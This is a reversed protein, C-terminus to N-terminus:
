KLIKFVVKRLSKPNNIQVMTQHIDDPFFIAFHATKLPTLPLKPLSYFMFDGESNYSTTPIENQLTKFGINEEGDVMYQIDIYKKHSEAKCDSIRQTEYEMVIAFVNEGDIVHKGLEITSLDNESIFHFAKRFGKHLEQYITYNEFKDLIM